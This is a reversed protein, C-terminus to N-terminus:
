LNRPKPVSRRPFLTSDHCRYRLRVSWDSGELRPFAHRLHDHAVSGFLTLPLARACPSFYSM